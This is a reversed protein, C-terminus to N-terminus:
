CRRKFSFFFIFIRWTKLLRLFFNGKLWYIRCSFVIKQKIPLFNLLIWYCKSNLVVLNLRFKVIKALLFKNLPTVKMHRSFFFSNRHQGCTASDGEDFKIKYWNFHCNTFRFKEYVTLVTNQIVANEAWYKVNTYSIWKKFTCM